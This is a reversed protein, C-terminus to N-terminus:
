GRMMTRMADRSGRAYEAFAGPLEELAVRDQIIPSLDAEGGEVARATLLFEEDTYVASGSIRREDMVLAAAPIQITSDALGVVVVEGRIPTLSLALAMSSPHGVAEIAVDFLGHGGAAGPAFAEFGLGEAIERRREDPEVVAVQAAGRRRAALAAGLGIIGGGVVVVRREPGAGAVAAAHTGVALPECLAASEIPTGAAMPVVNRARVAMTGAFAGPLGVACGYLRRNVCVNTAGSRCSPCDGCVVVPNLAVLAGPTLEVGAGVEVITGAAEHGMVVGPARRDNHGAYGHVDSACIGVAVPALRVEGPGLAPEPIPEVVLEGV